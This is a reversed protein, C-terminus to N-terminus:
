VLNVLVRQLLMKAEQNAACNCSKVSMTQPVLAQEAIVKVAISSYRVLLMIGM